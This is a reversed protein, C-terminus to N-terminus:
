IHLLRRANGEFIMNKESESIPMKELPAIKDEYDNISPIDSAFLVHEAGFFSHGCMLAPM